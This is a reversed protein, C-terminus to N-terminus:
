LPMGNQRYNNTKNCSSLLANRFAHENTRFCTYEAGSFAILLLVILWRTQIFHINVCYRQNQCGARRLAVSAV